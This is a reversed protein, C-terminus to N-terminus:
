LYIKCFHLWTSTVFVEQYKSTSLIPQWLYKQRFSFCGIFDITNSLSIIRLYSSGRITPMPFPGANTVTVVWFNVSSNFSVHFKCIADLGCFELFISLIFLVTFDINVLNWWSICALPYIQNGHSKKLDSAWWAWSIYVRQFKNPLGGGMILPKWPSRYWCPLMDGCFCSVCHAFVKEWICLFIASLGAMGVSVGTWVYLGPSVKQNTIPLLFGELRDPPAGIYDNQGNGCHFTYWIWGDM